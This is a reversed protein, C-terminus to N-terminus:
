NGPMAVVPPPPPASRIEVVWWVAVAVGCVVLGCFIMRARSPESAM